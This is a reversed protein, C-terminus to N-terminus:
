GEAVDEAAFVQASIVAVLREWLAPVVLSHGFGDLELLEAGPISAAVARGGSIDILRDAPGHIVLTPARVSALEATRDGDAVFAAYHYARADPHHAREYSAATFRRLADEDVHPGGSVRAFEVANAVVNALTGDTPRMIPDLAEPTSGGVDPSGTSTMIPILGAVREPWDIALRQVVMGGFSIGAAHVRDIGLIDMLAVMDGALDRLGYPPAADLSGDPLPRPPPTPTKTALGTDRNDFRIVRLGRAALAECLETPWGHLHGGLGSVVMLAPADADGFEEYHTQRGDFAAVCTM